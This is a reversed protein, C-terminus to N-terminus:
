TKRPLNMWKYLDDEEDTEKGEEDVLEGEGGSTIGELPYDDAPAWDAGDLRNHGLNWDRFNSLAM